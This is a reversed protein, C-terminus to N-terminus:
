KGEHQGDPYQTRGGTIRLGQKRLATMVVAHNGTAAVDSMVATKTDPQLKLVATIGYVDCITTGAPLPNGTTVDTVPRGESISVYRPDGKQFGSFIFVCGRQYRSVAIKDLEVLSEESSQMRMAQQNQSQIQETLAAMQSSTKLMSPLSTLVLGIATALVAAEFPNRRVWRQINM